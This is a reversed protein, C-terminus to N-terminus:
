FIISKAFLSLEFVRLNGCIVANEEDGSWM